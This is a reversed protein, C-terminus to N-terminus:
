IQSIIQVQTFRYDQDYKSSFNCKSVMCETYFSFPYGVHINHYPALNVTISSDNNQSLIKLPNFTTYSYIQAALTKVPNRTMENINLCLEKTLIDIFM